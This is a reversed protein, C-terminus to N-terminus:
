ESLLGAKTLEGQLIVAYVSKLVSEMVKRNTAQTVFKYSTRDGQVYQYFKKKLFSVGHLVDKETIGAPTQYTPAFEPCFSELKVGARLKAEFVDKKNFFVLLTKTSLVDTSMLSKFVTLAETLQNTTGDEECV